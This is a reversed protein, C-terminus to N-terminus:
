ACVTTQMRLDVHVFPNGAALLNQGQRVSADDPWREANATLMPRHNVAAPTERHEAPIALADPVFGVPKAVWPPVPHQRMHHILEMLDPCYVSPNDFRRGTSFRTAFLGDSCQAVVPV